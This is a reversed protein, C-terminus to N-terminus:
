CEPCQRFCKSNFTIEINYNFQFIHKTPPLQRDILYEQNYLQLTNTNITGQRIIVGNIDNLGKVTVPFRSQLLMMLEDAYLKLKLTDWYVFMGLSYTNKLDGMHDGRGNTLQTVSVNNLKHYIMVSNVDDIGVYKIEGDFSIVGPMRIKETGRLFEITHALGFFKEEAHIGSFDNNVAQLIKSIM